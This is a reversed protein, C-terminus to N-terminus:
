KGNDAEFSLLNYHFIQDETEQVKLKWVGRGEGTQRGGVVM